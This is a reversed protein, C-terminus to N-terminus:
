REGINKNDKINGQPLSGHTQAEAIKSELSNNEVYEENVPFRENCQFANSILVALDGLKVGGTNYQDIVGNTRHYEHGDYEAENCHLRVSYYYDKEELGEQELVVEISRGNSLETWAQPEGYSTTNEKNQLQNVIDDFAKVVEASLPVILEPKFDVYYHTATDVDAGVVGCGKVSCAGVGGESLEDSLLAKYKEACCQCMEGWIGGTDKDVTWEDFIIGKYEILSTAQMQEVVVALLMNQWREINTSAIQGLEPLYKQDIKIFDSLITKADDFSLCSQNVPFGLLSGFDEKLGFSFDGDDVNKVLMFSDDEYLVSFTEFSEGNKYHWRLQKKEEACYM